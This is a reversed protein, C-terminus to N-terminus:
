RGNVWPNARSNSAAESTRKKLVELEATFGEKGFSIKRLSDMNPSLMFLIGVICIAIILETPNTAAPAAILRYLLALEVFAIGLFVAAWQIQKFTNKKKKPTMNETM